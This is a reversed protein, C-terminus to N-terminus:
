PHSLYYISLNSSFVQHVGNNGSTHQCTCYLPLPLYSHILSLYNSVMNFTTLLSLLISSKLTWFTTLATWFANADTPHPSGSYRFVIIGAKNSSPSTMPTSSICSLTSCSSIFSLCKLAALDYIRYLSFCLCALNM